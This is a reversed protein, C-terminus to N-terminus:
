PRSGCTGISRPTMTELTIASRQPKLQPAMWFPMTWPMELASGAIIMRSTTPMRIPM